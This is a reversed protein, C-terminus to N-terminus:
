KGRLLVIFNHLMDVFLDSLETASFSISEENIFTPKQYFLEPRNLYKQALQNNSEQYKKQIKEYYQENIGRPSDAAWNASGYRMILFGIRRLEERDFYNPRNRQIAEGFMRLYELTKPSPSINMNEPVDYISPDKINCAYLFDYFVNERIQGKELVRVITGEPFLTNWADVFELFNGAHKQKWIKREHIELWEDFPETSFMQKVYEAYVSKFLVSQERLYIVVKVKYESLAAKLEERQDPNLFEFDESSVIVNRCKSRNIEAVLKKTNGSRDLYRQDGMYEWAINHHGAFEPWPCGKEPVLYGNKRLKERNESLGRQITTSATKHLGIHLYLTKKM